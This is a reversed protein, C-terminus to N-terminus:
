EAKPLDRPRVSWESDRQPEHTSSLPAEADARFAFNAKRRAVIALVDHKRPLVSLREQVGALDYLVDDPDLAGDEVLSCFADSGLVLASGGDLVYMAEAVEGSATSGLAAGGAALRRLSGDAAILFPAAFGACAYRIIGNGYLKGYWARVRIGNKLFPRLRRDLLRLAAPPLLDEGLWLGKLAPLLMAARVASACVGGVFLDVGGKRPEADYFMGGVERQPLNLVSFEWDGFWPLQTPLLDDHAAKLEDFDALFVRLRSALGTVGRLLGLAILYGAWFIAANFWVDPNTLSSPPPDTEILASGLAIVAAFAFASRYNAAIAWALIPGVALAAFEVDRIEYDFRMLALEVIVAAVIVVARGRRTLAVFLYWFPGRPMRRVKARGVHNGGRLKTL